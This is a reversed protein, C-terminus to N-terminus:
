IIKAGPCFKKADNTVRDDLRAGAALIVDANHMSMNAEYTGHM